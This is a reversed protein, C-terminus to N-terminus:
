IEVLEPRIGFTNEFNKVTFEFSWEELVIQKDHSISITLTDDSITVGNIRIKQHKGKDLADAVSLIAALKAVRIQDSDSLSQSFEFNPKAESSSIMRCIHAIMFMEAHSVGFINLNSIKDFSADLYDKMRTFKGIEHLNVALRLLLYDRENFIIRQGLSKFLILANQEVHKIHQENSKFRKGIEKTLTFIDDNFRRYRSVKNHKEVLDAVIGDRLSIDPILLHTGEVLESFVDYVVINALFEYWNGGNSEVRKRIGYDCELALSCIKKFDDLKITGADEFLTQRLRKADGGIALFNNLKRSKVTNWIHSTRTEVMEKLIYPYAVTKKELDMLIYKLEKVGLSMEENRILKNGSYISIDCSGSNVEVLLSSKRVDQYNPMQDRISKYTLFKEITDDIIEVEVGTKMYILEVVSRANKAERFANTALTKFVHVDYETLVKKFYNLIESIEQVRDLSIVGTLYVEEGLKVPVSIDELTMFNGSDIQVVKLKMANSGLDIASFIQEM